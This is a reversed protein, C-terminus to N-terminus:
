DELNVIANTIKLDTCFRGVDYMLSEKLEASQGDYWYDYLMSVCRELKEESEAEVDFNFSFVIKGKQRFLLGKKMKLEHYKEEWDKWDNHDIIEKIHKLASSYSLADLNEHRECALKHQQELDIYINLITEMVDNQENM